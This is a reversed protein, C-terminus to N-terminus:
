TLFQLLKSTLRLAGTHKNHRCPGDAGTMGKPRPQAPRADHMDGALHHQQQQM